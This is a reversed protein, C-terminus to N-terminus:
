RIQTKAAASTSNVNQKLYELIVAAKTDGFWLGAQAEVIAKRKPDNDVDILYRLVAQYFGTMLDEITIVIANRNLHANVAALDAAQAGSHAYYVEKAQGRQSYNSEATFTHLIACRAGWLELSSCSLPVAKLLYDNVWRQFYVNIAEGKPAELSAMVDIGTYLLTLAPL